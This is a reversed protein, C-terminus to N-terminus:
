WEESINEDEGSSDDDLEDGDSGEDTDEDSPASPAEEAEPAEGIYVTVIFGDSNNGSITSKVGNPVPINATDASFDAAVYYVEYLKGNDDSFSLHLAGTPDYPHEKLLEMYEEMTIGNKWMYYAHPVGVYRFHWPEYQIETIDEKGEPYRLIYGYKWCNEAFWAYEGTGNFDYDPITSFDIAYGSEHESYGPKAVRAYDETEESILAADYLEQQYERTRYSGYITLNDIGTRNYFDEIMQALPEYADAALMYSYDVTTFCTRGTQENMELISVLDESGGIYENYNNVLILEGKFIDTLPRSVTDYIVANPDPAETTSEPIEAVETVDAFPSTGVTQSRDAVGKILCGGACIVAASIILETVFKTRRISQEKSIKTDKPM